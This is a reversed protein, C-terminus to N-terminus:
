PRNNWPLTATGTLTDVIYIGDKPTTTTVSAFLKGNQPNFTLAQYDKGSASGILTAAGTLTNITYLNGSKSGAFLTGTNSYAIARINGIPITVM